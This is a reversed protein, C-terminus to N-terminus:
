TFDINCSKAIAASIINTIAEQHAPKAKRLQYRLLQASTQQAKWELLYPAPILESIYSLDIQQDDHIPMFDFKLETYPLDFEGDSSFLHSHLQRTRALTQSYVSYPKTTINESTGVTIIDRKDASCTISQCDEIFLKRTLVLISCKNSKQIHTCIHNCELVFECAYCNSIYIFAFTGPIKLKSNKCDSIELVLCEHGHCQM